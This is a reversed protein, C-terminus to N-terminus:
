TLRSLRRAFSVFSAGQESGKGQCLRAGFSCMISIWTGPPAQSFL